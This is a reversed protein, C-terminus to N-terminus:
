DTALVPTNTSVQIVANAAMLSLHSSNFIHFSQLHQWTGWGILSVVFGDELPQFLGELSFSRLNKAFHLIYKLLILHTPSTMKFSAERLKHFPTHASTNPSTQSCIQSIRQRQESDLTFHCSNLTLATLAPCLQGIMAVSHLNMEDCDTLELRGVRAPSTQLLRFVSHNYFDGSVIKIDALDTLLALCALHPTLSDPGTEMEAPRYVVELSTLGPCQAVVLQLDAETLASDCQLRELRLHPRAQKKCSALSRLAAPFSDCGSLDTLDELNRLLTAFGYSSVNTVKSLKLKQLKKLKSLYYAAEDTLESSRIQLATLQPCFLSINRIIETDIDALSLSALRPLFMLSSGQCGSLLGQKECPWPGLDLSLLQDFDPILQCINKVFGLELSSDLCLETVAQHCLLRSFQALVQKRVLKRRRHHHSEQWCEWDSEQEERQLSSLTRVVLRAIRPHFYHPTSNFLLEQLSIINNDLLNSRVQSVRREHLCPAQSFHEVCRVSVGRVVDELRDLSLSELREVNKRSPM